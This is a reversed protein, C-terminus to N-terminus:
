IMLVGSQCIRVVRNCLDADFWSIHASQIGLEKALAKYAQSRHWATKGKWLVDFAAHAAKRARQTTEDALTGLPIDTGPHTGVRAGCCECRYTLPWGYERGYIEANSILKVSGKCFRCTTPTELREKGIRKVVEPANVKRGLVEYQRIKQKQSGM